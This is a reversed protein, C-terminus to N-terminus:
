ATASRVKRRRLLAPCGVLGVLALALSPPAPVAIIPSPGFQMVLDMGMNASIHREQSDLAGDAGWLTISTPNAETGTLSNPVFQGGNSSVGYNKDVFTMITDSLGSSDSFDWSITGLVGGDQPNDFNSALLNTSTGVASGAANTLGEDTFLNVHLTLAGTTPDYTSTATTDLDFYVLISGSMGYNSAATHFVNHEFNGSNGEPTAVIEFAAEATGPLLVAMLTLLKARSM